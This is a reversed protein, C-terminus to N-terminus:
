RNTSLNELYDRVQHLDQLICTAMSLDQHATFQNPVAIVDLGANRAARVGSNSDELAITEAASGGLKELALLYVDPSPKPKLTGDNGVLTEFYHLLNLNRIILHVQEPRSSSAVAVHSNGATLWDLLEKLGPMTELNEADAILINFLVRHGESLQDVTQPLGFRERMAEVNEFVPRGTFEQGYEYTGFQHEVGAFRILANLARQHLPETDVILGDLDFIVNKYPPM